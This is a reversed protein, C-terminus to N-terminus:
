DVAKMLGQEVLYNYMQPNGIKMNEASIRVEFKTDRYGDLNTGIIGGSGPVTHVTEGRNHKLMRATRELNVINNPLAIFFPSAPAMDFLVGWSDGTQESFTDDMWNLLPDVSAVSGGRSFGYNEAFVFENTDQDVYPVSTTDGRNLLTLYWEMDRRSVGNFNGTPTTHPIYDRFDGYTSYDNEGHTEGTHDTIMDPAGTSTNRFYSAWRQQTEDRPKLHYPDASTGSNPLGSVQEINPVYWGNIMLDRAMAGGALLHITEDFKIARVAADLNLWADEDTKLKSLFDAFNVLEEQFWDGFTEFLNPTDYESGVDAQAASDLNQYIGDILNPVKGPDDDGQGLAWGMGGWGMGSTFSLGGFGGILGGTPIGNIDNEGCDSTDGAIVGVCAVLLGWLGGGYIAGVSFTEPDTSTGDGARTNSIAVDVEVLGGSGMLNWVTCRHLDAQAWFDRNEPYKNGSGDTDNNGRAFDYWCQEVFGPEGFGESLSMKIRGSKKNDVRRAFPGLSYNGQNIQQFWSNFPRPYLNTGGYGWDYPNRSIRGVIPPYKTFFGGPHAQGYDIPSSYEAM